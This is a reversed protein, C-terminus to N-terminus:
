CTNYRTSSCPVGDVILKIGRIGFNARSGFGRISIRSDQAYNHDNSIFVGPINEIYESLNFQQTSNQFNSYNKSSISFPTNILSDKLKAISVIVEKLQISDNSQNQSFSFFSIILFILIIKKKIVM